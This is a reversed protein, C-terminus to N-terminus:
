APTALRRFRGAFREAGEDGLFNVYSGGTSFPRMAEFFADAWAIHARTPPRTTGSPWSRWCSRRTAIGSRRRRPQFTTSRRRGDAHAPRDVAAVDRRQVFTPSRRRNRRGDATAPVVVALLEPLWAALWRRVADAAPYVAHSRHSGGASARVRAAAGAARRGSRTARTACPSRRSRRARPDAGPLVDLDPATFFYAMPTLTTPRRRRRLRQLLRAADAAREVPHAVRAASSRAWRGCSSVRVVTVVGFNGGGGRMRGSCIPITTASVTLLEGDATVMDVSVLSDVTLGGDRMLWGLGGGLTLGPWAPRRFRAAPSRWRIRRGDGCGARGVARRARRPRNPICPRGPHGEHRVSGAGPRRRLTGNGAVDHGGGRVALPLDFTRAHAVGIACRRCGPVARHRRSLPRHQHNWVRRAAEYDADAPTVLQGPLRQRLGALADGTLGPPPERDKYVVM